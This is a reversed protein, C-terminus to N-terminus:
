NLEYIRLELRPNDKDDFRFLHLEVVQKDDHWALGKLSDFACKTLNDIDGVKRPRYIDMAVSVNGDIPKIRAIQALKIVEEKYARAKPSLVRFRGRTIFMNNLTPPYPLTLEIMKM